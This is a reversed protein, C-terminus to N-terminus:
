WAISSHSNISRLSNKYIHMSGILSAHNITSM